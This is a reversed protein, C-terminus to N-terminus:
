DKCFRFGRDPTLNLERYENSNKDTKVNKTILIGSSGLEKTSEELFETVSERMLMMINLNM